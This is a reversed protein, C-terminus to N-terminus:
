TMSSPFGWTNVGTRRRSAPRTTRRASSRRRRRRRLISSACRDLWLAYAFFVACGVQTWLGFDRQGAVLSRANTLQEPQLMPSLLTLTAAAAMGWASAFCLVIFAVAYLPKFLHRRFFKPLRSATFGMSSCLIVLVLGWFTSTM